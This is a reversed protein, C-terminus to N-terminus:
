LSAQEQSQAESCVLHVYVGELLLRVFGCWSKRSRGCLICGQIVLCLDEMRGSLGLGLVNGDWVSEWPDPGGQEERTMQQSYM